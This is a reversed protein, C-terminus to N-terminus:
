ELCFCVLESAGKKCLTHLATNGDEDEIEWFLKVKTAGEMIPDFQDYETREDEIKM